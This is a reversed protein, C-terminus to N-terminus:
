DNEENEEMEEKPANKKDHECMAKEGCVPCGYKYRRSNKLWKQTDGLVITIGQMEADQELDKNDEM